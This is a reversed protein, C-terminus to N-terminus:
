SVALWRGRSGRRADDQFEDVRQNSAYTYFNGVRSNDPIACPRQDSYPLSNTKM